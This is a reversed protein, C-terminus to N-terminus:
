AQEPRRVAGILLKNNEVKVDYRDLARPAPGTLVKGDVSFTSTHCPCLFEKTQEVWHYACGLHTCQPALAIVDNESTRVVWATNKESTVKWGDVRNRRFVVEEPTGIPLRNLDGVDTWDIPKRARPPVLLYIAAPLALAASMVAWLGYIFSLQFTRRDVKVM